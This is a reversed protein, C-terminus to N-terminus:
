RLKGSWGLKTRLTTFYDRRNLNVLRFTKSSKKFSFSEEPKLEFKDIGDAIVEVSAHHSLYKVTFERTATIVIPRNSITHPCIPTIVIGDLSPSLIPGGAALSYATSGNPTSVVLGDAEFTNVHLGDVTISLEILKPNSSRHVVFDNIAYFLGSQPSQGELVLRDEITYAGDLLDKLSPLLDSIPVDAMFGLHGLNIGLIAAEMHRYKHALQLISGDGGMSILFSIDTSPVSSISPINCEKAFPDEAVVKVKNETFFSIIEESLKKSHKHHHSPFLAVIM